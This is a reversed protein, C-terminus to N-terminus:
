RHKKSAKAHPEEEKAAPHEDAQPRQSEVQSEVEALQITGSTYTPKNPVRPATATTLVTVGPPKMAPAEIPYTARWDPLVTNQPM